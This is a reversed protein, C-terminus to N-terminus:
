PAPAAAYDRAGILTAIAASWLIITVEGWVIANDRVAREEDLEALLAAEVAEYGTRGEPEARLVDGEGISGSWLTGTVVTGIGRLSFVRDIYLRTAGPRTVLQQLPRFVVQQHPKSRKEGTLFDVEVVDLEVQAPRRRKEVVVVVM